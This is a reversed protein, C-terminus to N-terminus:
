LNRQLWEYGLEYVGETVAWDSGKVLEIVAFADDNDAVRRLSSIVGEADGTLNAVWLSELLRVARWKALLEYLREYNREEHYDYSILFEAM